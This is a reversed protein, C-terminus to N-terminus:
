QIVACYINDPFLIVFFTVAFTVKTDTNENDFISLIELIYTALQMSELQKQNM